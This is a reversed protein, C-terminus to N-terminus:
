THMYIPYIANINTLGQNHSGYHESYHIVAATIEKNRNGMELVFKLKKAQTWEASSTNDLIVNWSSLIALKLKRVESVYRKKDIAESNPSFVAEEKRRRRRKQNKNRKRKLHTTKAGAISFKITQNKTCLKCSFGTEIKTIKM